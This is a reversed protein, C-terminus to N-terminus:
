VGKGEGFLRRISSSRYSDFAAVPLSFHSRSFLALGFDPELRADGVHSIARPPSDRTSREPSLNRNEGRESTKGTLPCLSAIGHQRPKPPSSPDSASKCCSQAPKCSEKPTKLSKSVIEPRPDPGASRRGERKGKMM